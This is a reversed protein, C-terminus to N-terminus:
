CSITFVSEKTDKTDKTNKTTFRAKGQRAKDRRGRGRGLDVCGGLLGFGAIRGGIGGEGM